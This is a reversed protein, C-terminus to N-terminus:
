VVHEAPAQTLEVHHAAKPSAVLEQQDQGVYADIVGHM